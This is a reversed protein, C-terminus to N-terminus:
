FGFKTRLASLNTNITASDHAGNWVQKEFFQGQMWLDTSEALNWFIASAQYANSGANGTLDLTVGGEARLRSSAGDCVLAFAVPSFSGNAPDILPTGCWWHHDDQDVRFNVANAITTFWYRLNANQTFQVGALYITFPGTIAASPNSCSLGYPGNTQVIDISNRPNMQSNGLTGLVTTYDDNGATTGTNNWATVASGGGSVSVIGSEEYHMLLVSSAALPTDQETTSYPGQGVSNTATVRMDYLSESLDLVDATIVNGEIQVTFVVDTALKFEVVYGTAGAVTNWDVQLGGAIPTLALGTVQAPVAGTTFWKTQLASIENTLEAGSLVDDYYKSEFHIMPLNLNVTQTDDWGLTEPAYSGVGLGGATLTDTGGNVIVRVSSIFGDIQAIVIVENGAILAVPNTISGGVDVTVGSTSVTIILNGFDARLFFRENADVVLPNFCIIFSTPQEILPNPAGPVDISVDPGMRLCPLSNRTFPTLNSFIGEVNSMNYVVGNRGTNKYLTVPNSVGVGKNNYEVLTNISPQAFPFGDWWKQQYAGLVSDKEATSLIGDYIRTEFFLGEFDSGALEDPRFLITDFEFGNNGANGSASVDTSGDNLIVRVESSVGLYEGLIILEQGDIITVTVPLDNAAFINGLANSISQDTIGGGISDRVLIEKSASINSPQVTTIITYPQFVANGTADPAQIGAAGLSEIFPKGKRTAPILNAVTGFPSTQNWVSEKLGQNNTFAIPNALDVGRENLLGELSISIATPTATVVSSFDGSGKSNIGQIKFQYEVSGGLAFIIQSTVLGIDGFPIFLSDLTEKFELNYGTLAPAAPPATWLLQVQEIGPTASVVIVIEPVGESTNSIVSSNPGDGQVNTAHVRVNYLVGSKLSSITDSLSLGNNIPIYSSNPQTSEKFEYTYSTPDPVVADWSIDLSNDSVGVLVILNVVQDPVGAPTGMVIDSFQGTGKSNKAAVQVDYLIGNTLGLITFTLVDGVDVETFPDSPNVRYRVCYNTVQPNANTIQSWSVILSSNAPEVSVGVVQPPVSQVPGIIGQLINSSM